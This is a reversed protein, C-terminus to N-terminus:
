DCGDAEIGYGGDPQPYRTRVFMMHEIRDFQESLAREVLANDLGDYIMVRGRREAQLTSEGPDFLVRYQYSDDAGAAASTILLTLLTLLKLPKSIPEVQQM